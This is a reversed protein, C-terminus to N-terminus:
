RDMRNASRPSGNGMVEHRFEESGRELGSLVGDMIETAAAMSVGATALVLMGQMRVETEGAVGTMRLVALAALREMVLAPMWIERHRSERWWWTAAVSEAAHRLVEPRGDGTLARLTELKQSRRLARRASLYERKAAAPERLSQIRQIRDREESRWWRKIVREAEPRAAHVTAPSVELKRAVTRLKGWSSRVAKGGADEMELVRDEALRCLHRVVEAQGKPAGGRPFRVREGQLGLSWGAEIFWSPLKRHAPM